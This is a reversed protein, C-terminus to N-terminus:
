GWHKVHQVHTYQQTRRVLTLHAFHLVLGRDFGWFGWLAETQCGRSPHPSPAGAAGQLWPQPPPPCVDEIHGRGWSGGGEAGMPSTHPPPLGPVAKPDTHSGTSVMIKKEEKKKKRKVM